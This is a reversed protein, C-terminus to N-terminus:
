KVVMSVAAAASALARALASVLRCFWILVCVLWIEDSVVAFASNTIPVYEPLSSYSRVIESPKVGLTTITESLLPLIITNFSMVPPITVSCFM